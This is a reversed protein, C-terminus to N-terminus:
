RDENGHGNGSENGAENGARNGLTKPEHGETEVADSDAKM